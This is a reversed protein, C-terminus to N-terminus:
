RPAPEAARGIEVTAADLPRSHNARAIQMACTTANM